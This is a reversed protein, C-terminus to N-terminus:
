FFLVDKYNAYKKESFFSVATTNSMQYSKKIERITHKVVSTDNANDYSIVVFIRQIYDGISDILAVEVPNFKSNHQSNPTILIESNTDTTNSSPIKTENSNVLKETVEPKEKTDVSCSSLIISVLFLYKTM